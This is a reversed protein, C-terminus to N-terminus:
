VPSSLHRDILEIAADIERTLAARDPSTLGPSPSGAEAITERLERERARLVELEAQAAVLERENRAAMDLADSLDSSLAEIRSRQAKLREDDSAELGKLRHTLMEVNAVAADREARLEAIARTRAEAEGGVEEKERELRALDLRAMAEARTAADLKAITQGQKAELESKETTLRALAARQAAIEAELEKLHGSDVAGKRAEDLEAARSERLRAIMDEQDALLRERDSVTAELDNIRDYLAEHRKEAKIAREELEASRRREAAAVENDAASSASRTEREAILEDIRERLQRRERRLERFRETLSELAEQMRDLSRRLDNFDNSTM